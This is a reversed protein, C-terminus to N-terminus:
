NLLEARINDLLNTQIGEMYSSGSQCTIATCEHRQAHYESFKSQRAESGCDVLFTVAHSTRCSSHELSDNEKKINRANIPPILGSQVISFRRLSSQEDLANTGDEREDTISRVAFANLVLQLALNLSCFITGETAVILKGVHGEGVLTQAWAVCGTAMEDLANWAAKGIHIKAIEVDVTGILRLCTESLGMKRSRKRLTNIAIYQLASGVVVLTDARVITKVTAQQIGETIRVLSRRKAAVSHLDSTYLECLM